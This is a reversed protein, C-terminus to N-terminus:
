RAAGFTRGFACGRVIGWPSSLMKPYPLGITKSIKGYALASDGRIDGTTWGGVMEGFKFNIM